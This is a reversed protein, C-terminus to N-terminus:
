RLLSSLLPSTAVPRREPASQTHPPGKTGSASTAQAASSTTLALSAVCRHLVHHTHEHAAARPRSVRAGPTGIVIARRPAKAGRRSARGAARATACTSRSFAPALHSSMMCFTICPPAGAQTPCRPAGDTSAAGRPCRIQARVGGPRSSARPTSPARVRSLVVVGRRGCEKARGVLSGAKLAVLPKTRECVCGSHAGSESGIGRTAAAEKQAKVSCCVKGEGGKGDSSSAYCM